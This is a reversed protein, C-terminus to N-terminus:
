FIDGCYNRYECETCRARHPTPPPLVEDRVMTRIVDLADTVSARLEETILVDEADQRPILYIFGREVRGGMVDEILLAYAGLQARHNARVGGSTFKFDVPYRKSDTEILLDLKGSLGLRESSLWVHFRRRGDGLGYRVLKRRKELVDLRAEQAKGAEMKYTSVKEVPLVYQYFVIRPCYEYQKLDTVRLQLVNSAM